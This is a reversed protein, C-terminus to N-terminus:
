RSYHKVSSELFEPTPCIMEKIRCGNRYIKITPVIRVNEAIAISRTEEIDVKLFNVLPYQGSLTEFLPSIKRCNQNSETKFHVISVGPSSIAARFQDLGSSVEVDRVRDDEGRSKKLAVQARLLSESVECDQPFEAHLIEYDKVAEEWQEVKFYSAARRLLAKTYSPQISLARDCDEISRQWLGLKFWCAARNCYLVSNSPDHKLGEGYAGCAETFRESKFLNNGRTRAGSVLRINTLLVSIEVNRLDIKGAKEVAVIANEFRGFAMEIEARVFYFYAEAIMGFFKSPTKSSNFNVIEPLWASAYDLQQLKLFSEAKLARIQACADAGAAVAADCEKLASKWDGVKRADSCKNLHMELTQLKQMMEPSSIHKRASEVYGLRLLISGLRYQAKSYGPDFKIADELEIAAENLRNLSTLVIAKNYRYTPNRPSLSIAKDYLNLAETLHGNRYHVNGERKLEEAESSKATDGGHPSNGVHPNEGAGMKVASGGRIISGHGYLGTGTGLVDTKSTQSMMGTKLVRGSPCINGTPLVNVAPSTAGSNIIRPRRSIPSSDVSGSIEGSHSRNPTQSLVNPDSISGSSSSSSSATQRNLLPSLPSGLDLERFDPKNDDKDAIEDLWLVKSSKRSHSM